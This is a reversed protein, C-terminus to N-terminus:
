RFENSASRPPLASGAGQGTVGVDAAPAYVACRLAHWQRELGGRQVPLWPGGGAADLRLLLFAGLDIAVELTGSCTAGGDSVFTWLGDRCSLIGGEVRSLSGAVWATGAGLVAAVALALTAGQEPESASMAVAWAAVASIALAGVVLVAVRWVGFRRVPAEFFVSERM